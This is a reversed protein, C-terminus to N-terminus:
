KLLLGKHTYCLGNVELQFYYIGSAISTNNIDTGNWHIEHYGGRYPGDILRIVEGGLTNLIKLTVYSDISLHFSVMTSHNFPNPYNQFLEFQVPHNEGQLELTEIEFVFRRRFEDMGVAKQITFQPKVINSKKKFRIRLLNGTGSVGGQLRSRCISVALLNQEPMERYFILPADKMFEGPAVTVIDLLDSPYEVRFAAGLLHSVENVVLLLEIENESEHQLFTSQIYTPAIKPAQAPDCTTDCPQGQRCHWFCGIPLIDEEDVNGNGDADAYTYEIRHDWPRCLVGEWQILDMPFYRAYGSQEWSLGIPLLDAQDVFGNNDTDGPWVPIWGTLFICIEGPDLPIESWDPEVAKSEVINFCTFMDPIMYDSQFQIRLVAGTGSIITNGTDIRTIATFLTDESIIPTLIQVEAADGLFLGSEIQGTPHVVGPDFKIALSVGYLSDVATVDNGIIVDLWFVDGAIQDSASPKIPVPDPNYAHNGSQSTM